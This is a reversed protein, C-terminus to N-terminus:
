MDLEEKTMRKLLQIWPPIPDFPQAVPVPEAKFFNRCAETRNRFALASIIFVLRTDRQPSTKISLISM